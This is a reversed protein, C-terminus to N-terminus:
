VTKVHAKPDGIVVSKWSIEPMAAYYSDALTFGQYYAPFLVNLDEVDALGPESVYGSAGTINMMVLDSILSQGGTWPYQHMNRASTSVFTEGIAGPVFTLNWRSSNDSIAQGSNSGWSAYGSLGHMNVRFSSSVLQNNIGLHTLTNASSNFSVQNFDVYSLSMANSNLLVYGESAADSASSADNILNYISQLTPGDLRTVEYMHYESWRFTNNELYTRNIYTVLSNYHTGKYYPNLSGSGETLNNAMYSDISYGNGSDILPVGSTTVIYDIRGLGVSTIKAKVQALINQTTADNVEENNPISNLYLIHSTNFGEGARASSFYSCVDQSITSNNNCVLLVDSYSYYTTQNFPITTTMTTTTTTSTTSTTSTSTSTISTTSTTSTSPQETASITGIESVLNNVGRETYEIWLTGQFTAGVKNSTVKCDFTIEQEQGVTFSTDTSSFSSTGPAISSNSCATGTVTIPATTDGMTASYVGSTTLVSNTCSFGDMVTCGTPATGGIQFVNLEFLAIIIVAIVIVSWGYTSLYEVASQSREKKSNM